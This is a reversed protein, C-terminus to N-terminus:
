NPWFVKVQTGANLKSTLKVTGRYQEILKKVIPLGKGSGKFYHNRSAQNFLVFANSQQLDNMGAGADNVMMTVGHKGIMVLVEINGTSDGYHNIANSILQLLIMKVPVKPLTVVLDSVNLQMKAPIDLLYEMEAVLAKVNFTTASVKEQGVLAYEYMDGLFSSMSLCRSKIEELQAHTTKDFNMENDEIIYDVLQHINSIPKRMDHTALDAFQSLEIQKAEFQQILHQQETVDVSVGLIYAEEGQGFRTKTTEITRIEGNPFAITEFCKHVGKAFAIKDNALFLEVEDPEYKEVTTYGIVKDRQDAPYVHLFANNAFVIEFKHNKVFIFNDSNNVIMNQFHLAEYYEHQTKALAMKAEILGAILRISLKARHSLPSSESNLVFLCGVCENPAIFLPLGYYYQPDVDAVNVSHHHKKTGFPITMETPQANDFTQQTYFLQPNIQSISQASSAVIELRGNKCVAVGGGLVSVMKMLDEIYPAFDIALYSLYTPIDPQLLDDINFEPMM